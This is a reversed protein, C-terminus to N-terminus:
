DLLEGAGILPLTKEVAFPVVVPTLSIGELFNYVLFYKYIM